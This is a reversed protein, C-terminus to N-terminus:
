QENKCPLIGSNNEKLRARFGVLNPSDQEDGLRSILTAVLISYAAFGSLLHWGVHLLWVGPYVECLRNESEWLVRGLVIGVLACLYSRTHMAAHRGKWKRVVQGLVAETLVILCFGHLFIEYQQLAVYIGVVGLCELLCFATLIMRKGDLLPDQIKALMITAMFGVMPIEDLLQMWYWMIGHFLTSGVGILVLWMAAVRVHADHRVKDLVYLGIVVFILSSVSNFFEAVYQSTAYHPGCFAHTVDEDPGWFGTSNYVGSAVSWLSTSM